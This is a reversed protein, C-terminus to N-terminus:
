EEKYINFLFLIFDNFSNILITTFIIYYFFLKMKLKKLNLM